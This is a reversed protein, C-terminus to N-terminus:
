HTNGVGVGVGQEKTLGGRGTFDGWGWSMYCLSPSIGFILELLIRGGGGGRVGVTWSAKNAAWNCQALAPRAIWLPTFTKWVLQNAFQEELSGGGWILFLDGCLFHTARPPVNLNWGYPNNGLAWSRKMFKCLTPFFLGFCIPKISHLEREGLKIM